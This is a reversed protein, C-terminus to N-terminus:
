VVMYKSGCAVNALLSAALQCPLQMNSRKALLVTYAFQNRYRVLREGQIPRMLTVKVIKPSGQSGHLGARRRPWDGPSLSHRCWCQLHLRLKQGFGWDLGRVGTTDWGRLLRPKSKAPNGQVDPAAPISIARGPSQGTFCDKVVSRSRSFPARFFFCWCSVPTHNYAHQKRCQCFGAKLFNM